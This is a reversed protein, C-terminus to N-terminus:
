PPTLPDPCCFTLDHLAVGKKPSGSICQAICQSAKLPHPLPPLPPLPWSRLYEEINGYHLCLTHMIHAAHGLLGRVGREHPGM